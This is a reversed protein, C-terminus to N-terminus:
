RRGRTRQLFYQSQQELDAITIVKDGDQDYRPSRQGFKSAVIALDHITVIGDHDVDARNRQAREGRDASALGATGLVLVLALAASVIIRRM